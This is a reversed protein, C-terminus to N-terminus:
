AWRPRKSTSGGQGDAQRKRPDLTHWDDHAPQNLINGVQPSVYKEAKNSAPVWVEDNGIPGISQPRWYGKEPFHQKEFKIFQAIAYDAERVARERHQNILNIRSQLNRRDFLINLDPIVDASTWDKYGMIADGIPSIGKITQWHWSPIARNPNSAGWPGVPTTKKSHNIKKLVSAPVGNEGVEEKIHVLTTEVVLRKMTGHGIERPVWPSMYRTAFTGSLPAYDVKYIAPTATDNVFSVADIDHAWRNNLKGGCRVLWKQYEDKFKSASLLTSNVGLLLRDGNAVAEKEFATLSTLSDKFKELRNLSVPDEFESTKTSGRVIPQPVSLLTTPHGPRLLVNVLYNLPDQALLQQIIAFQQGWQQPGDFTTHHSLVKSETYVLRSLSPNNQFWTGFVDLEVFSSNALLVCPDKQCLKFEGVVLTTLDSWEKVSQPLELSISKAKYRFPALRNIELSENGFWISVEPNRKVFKMFIDMNSAHNSLLCIQYNIDLPINSNLGLARGVRLMHMDCFVGKTYTGKQILRKKRDLLDVAEKKAKANANTWNLSGILGIDNSDLVADRICSCSPQPTTASNQPVVAQSPNPQNLTRQPVTQSTQPLAPQLPNSQNPTRQSAAAQSSNSLISLRQHDTTPASQSKALPPATKSVNQQIPVASQAPAPQTVAVPQPTTASSQPAVAQSPNPQNPTRQHSATQSSASQSKALPPAAKSVNKQIPVASQAPAPQTVAVQPFVAKRSSQSPNQTSSTLSALSLQSSSSPRSRTVPWSLPTSQSTAQKSPIQQPQLPRATISSPAVVPATGQVSTSSQPAQSLTPPAAPKSIALQPAPQAAAGFKIFGIADFSFSLNIQTLSNLDSQTVIRIDNSSMKRANELDTISPEPNVSLGHGKGTNIKELRSFIVSVFRRVIDNESILDAGQQRCAVRLRRKWSTAGRIGLLYPGVTPWKAPVETDALAAAALNIRRDDRLKKVKKFERPYDPTQMYKMFLPKKEAFSEYADGIEPWQNSITKACLGILIAGQRLYPVFDNKNLTGQLKNLELFLEHMDKVTTNGFAAPEPFKGQSKELKAIAAGLAALEQDGSRGSQQAAANSSM